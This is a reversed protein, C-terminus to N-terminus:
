VSRYFYLSALNKKEEQGRTASFIKNVRVKWRSHPVELSLYMGNFRHLYLTTFLLQSLLAGVDCQISFGLRSFRSRLIHWLLGAVREPSSFVEHMCRLCASTPSRVELPSASSAPVSADAQEFHCVLMFIEWIVHEYIWDM